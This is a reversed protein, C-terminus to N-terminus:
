CSIRKSSIGGDVIYISNETIIIYETDCKYVKQVTSTYEEESRVLLKEQNEKIGIFIMTKPDLSDEWYDMVIPKKQTVSLRFANTQCKESPLRCNQSSSM